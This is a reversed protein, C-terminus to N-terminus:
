PTYITQRINSVDQRVKPSERIGEEMKRVGYMITTHDRGGLFEGISMYPTKTIDWILYMATQRPIVLEKTRRAGKIDAIAVAYYNSVAKLITNLNVPKKAREKITAGLASKIMEETVKLGTTKAKTVVQLYAGELERVNTDVMVAITDVAENSIDEGREDRLTRLIASRTEVDPPQIDAIMGSGFRSKIREELNKFENPPKDSTIVIQRQGNYLANFTHFFEEQTSEKGAIFQIDDILLVDAKRYKDRFRNSSYVGRGKGSQLTEIFENTFSEGTCYIVKLKPKREVVRNGIAHILHTKGLGVGGWIFFPNYEGGPKEAIAVAVAYAVQNNTGMIYSEFTYKPVLGTPEADARPKINEFLPAEKVPYARREEIEGVVITLVYKKKTVKLIGDEILSLLKKQLVEKVHADRCMIQLAGEDVQALRTPKIWTNFYLPSLQTQIDAKITEWVVKTDM